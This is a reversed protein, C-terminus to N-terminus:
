LRAIYGDISEDVPEAHGDNGFYRRFAYEGEAILRQNPLLSDWWEKPKEDFGEVTAPLEEDMWDFLAPIDNVDIDGPEELTVDETLENALAMGSNINSFLIGLVLVMSLWKKLRKM